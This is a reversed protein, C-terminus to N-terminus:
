LTKCATMLLWNRTQSIRTCERVWMGVWVGVLMLMCVHVCVIQPIFFFFFDAWCSVSHLNWDLSCWNSGWALQGQHKLQPSPPASLHGVPVKRMHSSCETLNKCWVTIVSSMKWGASQLRGQHSQRLSCFLSALVLGASHHISLQSIYLAIHFSQYVAILVWMWIWSLFKAKPLIRSLLTNNNNKKQRQRLTAVTPIRALINM